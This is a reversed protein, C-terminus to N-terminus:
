GARLVALVGLALVFLGLSIGIAAQPKTRRAMKAGVRELPAAHHSRDGLGVRHLGVSGFIGLVVGVLGAALAPVAGFFPLFYFVLGLIAAYMSTACLQAARVRAKAENEM